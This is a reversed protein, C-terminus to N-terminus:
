DNKLLVSYKTHQNPMFIAPANKQGGGGLPTTSFGVVGSPVGGAVVFPRESPLCHWSRLM